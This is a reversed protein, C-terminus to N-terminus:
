PNRAPLTPSPYQPYLDTTSGVPGTDIAHIGVLVLDNALQPFNEARANTLMAFTYGRAERILTAQSGAMLGGHGFTESTPGVVIALGRWRALSDEESVAGPLHSDALMQLKSDPTLFGAIRSGDFATMLRTLDIASGIWGGAGELTLPDHAYPPAVRGEGAFVSDVLPAGDYTYYKAEIPGRQNLHPQGISMAHVGVPALVQDRVYSEYTQGSVKAVVQGLICFGTNSYVIRTGPTFQLPQTMTYRIIDRCTIPTTSGLARAVAFPQNTPDDFLAKDWGGSHQLLQRLTIDRLRADGGPQVPYDTLISLFTQDLDLLGQDRLRMIALGTLFKSISGVRVMADPQMLQKTEFDAYGYGRAFILQGNRAVALGVGPVNYKRMMEKVGADFPAVELANAGSVPISADAPYFAPVLVREAAAATIGSTSGSGDGSAVSGGAGCSALFASVILGSVARSRLLM